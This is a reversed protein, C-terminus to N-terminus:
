YGSSRRRNPSVERHTVPLEEAPAAVTCAALAAGERRHVQAVGCNSGATLWTHGRVLACRMTDCGKVFEFEAPSMRDHLSRNSLVHFAYKELKRLRTRLYSAMLYKM